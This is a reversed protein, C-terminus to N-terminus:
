AGQQLGVAQVESRITSKLKHGCEICQTAAPHNSHECEPCIIENRTKPVKSLGKSTFPKKQESKSLVIAFGIINLFLGLLFASWANLGKQVALYAAAGGFLLGILMICGFWFFHRYLAPKENSDAQFLAARPEIKATIQDLSGANEAERFHAECNVSCLPHKIDKYTISNQGNKHYKGCVLCQVSNSLQQRENSNVVNPSAFHLCLCLFFLGSRNSYYM